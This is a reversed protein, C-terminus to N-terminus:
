VMHDDEDYSAPVSEWVELLVARLADRDMEAARLLGRLAEVEAVMAPIAEAMDEWTDGHFRCCDAKGADALDNVLEEWEALQAAPSM